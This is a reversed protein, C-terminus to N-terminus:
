NSFEIKLSKIKKSPGVKGEVEQTKFTFRGRIKDGRKFTVVAVIEDAKKSAGFTIERQLGANAMFAVRIFSEIESIGHLGSESSFPEYLTADDVFLDLLGDLDRKSIKDFYELVLEKNTAILRGGKMM